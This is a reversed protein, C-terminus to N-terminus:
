DLNQCYLIINGKRNTMHCGDVDMIIEKNIQSIIVVQLLKNILFVVIM